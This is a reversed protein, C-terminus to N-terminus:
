PGPALCKASGVDRVPAADCILWLHPPQRAAPLPEDGGDRLRRRPRVQPHPRRSLADGQADLSQANSLAFSRDTHVTFVLRKGFAVCRGMAAQSNAGAICRKVERSAAPWSSQLSQAYGNAQSRAANLQAQQSAQNGQNISNRVSENVQHRQHERDHRSDAQRHLHRGRRSDRGHRRAQHDPRHRDGSWDRAFGLGSSAQSRRFPRAKRSAPQRPSNSRAIDEDGRQGLVSFLEDTLERQDREQHRITPGHRRELDLALDLAVARHVLVREGPAEVGVAGLELAEPDRQLDVLRRLAEELGLQVRQRRLVVVQAGISNVSGSSAANRM